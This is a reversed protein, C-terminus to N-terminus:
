GVSELLGETNCCNNQANVCDGEVWPVSGRGGRM